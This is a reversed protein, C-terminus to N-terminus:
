QVASEPGKADFRLAASFSFNSTAQCVIYGMFTACTIEIRALLRCSPRGLKQIAKQSELYLNPVVLLPSILSRTGYAVGFLANIPNLCRTRSWSTSPEFGNAGVVEKLSLKCRLFTGVVDQNHALLDTTGIDEGLSRWKGRCIPTLHRSAAVVNGENQLGRLGFLVLKPM